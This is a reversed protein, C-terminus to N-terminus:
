KKIIKPSSIDNNEILPLLVSFKSGNGLSSEVSIKGKHLMIIHKVISLGLGTGANQRSRSKDVTYFREFIRDIDNEPIGIGTDIVEFKINSGEKAANVTIGGYETYRIANEILNIFMQELKFDDAQFKPIDENINFVLYLNKEKIKQEFTNNLDDFLKKIDVEALILKVNSEELQSVTMLDQVINILRNTHNKMIELHKHSSDPIEEELTEIYGKIVTLPTRLEHSVNVVFDRKINELKKLDSINYFILVIQKKSNIHNASCLYYSDKIQVEININSINDRMRKVLKAIQTGRIIEWYFKGNLPENMEEVEIAAVNVGKVVGKSTHNINFGTMKEFSQNCLVIKGFQDLVVLGEQISAIINNLEIKQNNVQTFLSKIEDIMNNFSGGLFKLEDNNKVTVKQDFDGRAVARSVEVLQKIPKTLNKSFFYAFILSLLVLILIVELIKVRLSNILNDVDTMFMSIRSIGIINDGDKIPLAVYLMDKNITYSHRVSSGKGESFAKIVEPRDSHNEMKSPDAKSDALVTGSPNIITIRENIDIGLTKVISDLTSIKNAILLPTVELSIPHNLAILDQILSKQYSERILRFSFVLFFVTLIVIISLYGIFIKTFVKRM